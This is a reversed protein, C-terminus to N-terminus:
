KGHSKVALSFLNEIYFYELILKKLYSEFKSNTHRIKLINRQDRSLDLILSHFKQSKKLKKPASKSPFSSNQHNKIKSGKKHMEYKM